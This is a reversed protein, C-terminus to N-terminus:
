ALLAKIAILVADQLLKFELLKHGLQSYEQRSLLKAYDEVVKILVFVAVDGVAFEDVHELYTSSERRRIRRIM